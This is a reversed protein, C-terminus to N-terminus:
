DVDERGEPLWAQPSPEDGEPEQAITLRYGESLWVSLDLQKCRSSCFPFSPNSDRLAIPTRCKACRLTPSHDADQPMTKNEYPM